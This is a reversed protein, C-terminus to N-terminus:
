CPCCQPGTLEGTRRKRSLRFGLLADEVLLAPYKPPTHSTADARVLYTGAGSAEAGSHLCCSLLQKWDRERSAVPVASLGEADEWGKAM